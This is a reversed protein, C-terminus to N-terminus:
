KITKHEKIAIKNKFNIYVAPVAVLTSAAKNIGATEQESNKQQQKQTNKQSIYHFVVSYTIKNIYVPPV